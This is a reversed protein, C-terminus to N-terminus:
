KPLVNTAYTNPAVKAYMATMKEQIFSGISIVVLVGLLIHSWLKLKWRFSQWSQLEDVHLFRNRYERPLEFQSQLPYLGEYFDQIVARVMPADQQQHDFNDNLCIFKKRSHRVEDLMTILASLNNPLMKFMVHNDVETMVEHKYKTDANFHSTIKDLMTRCNFLLLATVQPMNQSYYTEPNRPPEEVVGTQARANACSRLTSEFENMTELSIPTPYIYTALVRLERDSLVGSNDSDFFEFVDLYDSSKKVSILYQFYSFAYQMDNGMRVKNKSTREFQESFRTQLELMIDKNIFHPMHAIVMRQTSGGFEQDYLRNVYRLSEKFTDKTLDTKKQSPKTRNTILAALASNNTASVNHQGPQQRHGEISQLKRNNFTEVKDNKGGGEGNLEEMANQKREFVADVIQEVDDEDIKAVNPKENERDTEGKTDTKGGDILKKQDVLTQEVEGTIVFHQLQKMYPETLEFVVQEFVSYAMTRNAYFGLVKSLRITVNRPLVNANGAAEVLHKSINPILLGNPVLPLSQIIVPHKQKLKSTDFDVVKTLYHVSSKSRQSYPSKLTFNLSIAGATGAPIIKDDAPSFKLLVSWQYMSNEALDSNLNLIVQILHKTTLLKVTRILASKQYTVDSINLKHSLCYSTANVIFSREALSHNYHHEGGSRLSIRPLKKLSAVGCDGADFGCVRKNCSMDCYKDGLWSDTCGVACSGDSQSNLGGFNNENEPAERDRVAPSQGLENQSKCDGGDFDCEANNCAADCYGDHIWANPCEDKCPPVPWGPYIKYGSQHTFFDQPYIPKGLMVDDNFYLFHQSLGPIKHLQAEIAPSSFTPLYEEGSPFIEEHKVITLRPSELNMWAPIQGNTVIFIHRIWPAFKEVSRLSYRLEENDAFRSPSLWEPDPEVGELDWLLFCPNVQVQGLVAPNQYFYNLSDVAFDNELFQMLAIKEEKYIEVKVLGKTADGPLAGSLQREEDMQPQLNSFLISEAWPLAEDVMTTSTLYAQRAIIDTTEPKDMILKRTPDHLIEAIIFNTKNFEPYEDGDITIFRLAASADPFQQLVKEKNMKIKSKKSEFVIFKSPICDRLLCKFTTVNTDPNVHKSFIQGEGSVHTESLLGKKILTQKADRLQIMLDPDSGNVWTYVVDIPLIPSLEDFQSRKGINDSYVSFFSDYNFQSYTYLNELIHIFIVTIIIILVNWLFAVLKLRM